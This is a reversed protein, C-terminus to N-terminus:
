GRDLVERVRATLAEPTFPKQLYPMGQELIRHRVVADSTYGSMYVVRVDPREATLAAALEPGTMGPMVVDTVLLHIRSPHARAMELATQGDPARLVFYGKQSLIQAAVERVAAEDEALLVTERGGASPRRAAPPADTEVPEDVQPLYIKFTAGRGPESYVWVHGGSQKVIGYVTALGLGTGKGVEKTTFFPEFLHSRTEADMGVGTDSVALMVYRGPAAGAHQQAYSEEFTADATEITLRGGEPMADRANVALNLIVQELQGPDARVPHVAPALSLELKVDEGILRQLMRDLASVVGNLDLVRPQLVQKRSFALLQRTLTAARQAAARIGEVDECRPDGPALGDLLLSSYGTIATLINNFDHAVGGALRGVAELRQAQRFQMELARQATVDEVLGEFVEAEGASGRVARMNLRVTIPTGDKRKWQCEAAAVDAGALQAILQVRESVNAYVDRALNVQLLEDAEYGLMRALAPNATLVCGDATSRYIGLTAHEFLNRYDAESRRLLDEARKRDTIDRSVGFTGVVTGDADRLPMKTTSVWAERGDPWTEHEEFNVVPEGTRLIRQEDQRASEAHEGAFFDRDTRGVLQDPHDVGLRRALARNARLFRSERDKFYIPDPVTDMLTKMLFQEFRLAEEAKVRESIDRAGAVLYDRDLRVYALNLEVPFTSGDKRRHTTRYTASGSARLGELRRAYVAATLEPDVDFVRLSLLEERGYGLDRCTRENADLYRGSDPEIVEIGESSQDILARFLQQSEESRRELTRQETVDQALGEIFAERDDAAPVTWGALQVVIHTGDRRKWVVEARRNNERINSARVAPEVYLDRALDLALVQEASDYGLMRVLAPNVALFRGGRTSRYIGVSAQEVLGRFEAESRELAEHDRRRAAAMVQTMENFQGALRGLEDSRRPRLTTTLDGARVRDLATELEGLPRAVRRRFLILSTAATAAAVLALLGALWTARSGARELEAERALLDSVGQHEAGTLRRWIATQLADAVLERQRAADLNGMELLDVVELLRNQLETVDADVAALAERIAPPASAYGSLRAPSSIAAITERERQLADLPPLPRAAIMDHLTQVAGGLAGADANLADILYVVPATSRRVAAAPPITAYALLAGLLIIGAAGAALFLGLSARVSLRGRPPM